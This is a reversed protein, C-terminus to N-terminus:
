LVMLFSSWWIRKFWYVEGDFAVNQKANLITTFDGTLAVRDSLKIQGTVGAMFNGMRDKLPDKRELFSLGFGTHGLLGITNTWTEFNM